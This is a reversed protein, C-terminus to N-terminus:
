CRTTLLDTVLASDRNAHKNADSAARYLLRQRPPLLTIVSVLVIHYTASAADTAALAIPV